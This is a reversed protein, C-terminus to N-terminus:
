EGIIEWLIKKAASLNKLSAKSMMSLTEKKAEELSKELLADTKKRMADLSTKLTEAHEAETRAKLAEGKKEADAIMDAAKNEADAVIEAAKKEAERIAALAEKSM